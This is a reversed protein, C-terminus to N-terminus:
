LSLEPQAHIAERWAEAKPINTDPFMSFGTGDISDAGAKLALEYRRKGNVRGWHVWLGRAKAYGCLTRAAESEKYDTSGGIFLAAMGQWPVRDPTLGDQAVFAPPLGLGRLLECWFPWRALTCAADGVVDPAVVFQCPHAAHYPHYREIMRLYAGEDFGSFAGNDMAWPHSLDLSAPDNWQRPVVLHGVTASRQAGTAGSVLLIV